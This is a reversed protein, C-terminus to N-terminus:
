GLILLTIERLSFLETPFKIMTSPEGKYVPQMLENQNKDRTNYHSAMGKEGATAAIMTSLTFACAILTRLM